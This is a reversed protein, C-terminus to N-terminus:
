NMVASFFVSNKSVEIKEANKLKDMLVAVEFISLTSETGLRRHKSLKQQVNRTAKNRLSNM